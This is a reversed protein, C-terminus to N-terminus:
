LRERWSARGIQSVFGMNMVSGEPASIALRANNDDASASFVTDFRAYGQTNICFSRSEYPKGDKNELRVTVIVPMGEAKAFMYFAYTHGKILSIGNYGTNFVVGDRNFRVKMSVLRSRNLRDSGDLEMDAEHSYWAPIPTYPTQNEELWRGLGEGHHFTDKWGEPTLFTAGDSRFLM